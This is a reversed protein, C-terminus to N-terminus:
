ACPSEKHGCDCDPKLFIDYSPVIHRIRAVSAANAEGIRQLVEHIAVIGRVVVDILLRGVRPLIIVNSPCHINARHIADSIISFEELGTSGKEVGWM